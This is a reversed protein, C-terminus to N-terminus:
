DFTATLVPWGRQMGDVSSPVAANLRTGVTGGSCDWDGLFNVIDQVARCVNYCVVNKLFDM